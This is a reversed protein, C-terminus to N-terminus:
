RFILARLCVCLFTRCECCVCYGGAVRGCRCPLPEGTGADACWGRRGGAEDGPGQWGKRRCQWRGCGQVVWGARAAGRGLKIGVGNSFLFPFPVCLEVAATDTYVLNEDMDAEFSIRSWHMRDGCVGFLIKHEGFPNADVTSTEGRWGLKCKKRRTGEAEQRM